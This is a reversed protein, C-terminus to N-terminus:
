LFKKIQQEWTFTKVFSRNEEYVKKSDLKLADEIGNLLSEANSEVFIINNEYAEHGRFKTSVIPRGSALYELIKSPFNNQNQSYNMNRPNVLVSAQEITNMYEETSLFGKFIIRSDKQSAERIIEDLEKGQGCITLRYNEDEIKSFADILLDVGTVYSLVGSYVINKIPLCGTEKVNAFKKEDICGNIVVKEQNKSIYKESGESLLVVKSYLKFDINMLAAYLKRALNKQEKSPTYDALVLVSKANVKSALKGVGFWPYMSNYVFVYDSWKIQEKLLKRYEIISKSKSTSFVIQYNSRKCEEKIEDIDIEIPINIFSLVKVDGIKKLNAILNNQYQNGAVSLMEIRKEFKRPLCCGCFLINM